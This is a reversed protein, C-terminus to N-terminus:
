QGAKKLMIYQSYNKTSSELEDNFGGNTTCTYFIYITIPLFISWFDSNGFELGWLRCKSPLNGQALKFSLIRM